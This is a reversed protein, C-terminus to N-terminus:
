GHRTWGILVGSMLPLLSLRRDSAIEEARIGPGAAADLQPEYGM